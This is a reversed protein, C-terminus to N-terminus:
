INMVPVDNPILVTKILPNNYGVPGDRHNSEM